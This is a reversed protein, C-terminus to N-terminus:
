HINIPQNGSGAFNDDILGCFPCGTTPDYVQLDLSAGAVARGGHFPGSDPFQPTVNVTLTHANGDCTVPTGFSLGGGAGAQYGISGSGFALAKGSVKQTVSVNFADTFLGSLPETLVPCAYRVPVTLYVGNVLRIPGGISVSMGGDLHSANAQIPAAVLAAFAAVLAVIKAKSRLSHWKPPTDASVTSPGGLDRM